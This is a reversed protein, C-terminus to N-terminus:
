SIVLVVRRVLRRQQFSLNFFIEGLTSVIFTEDLDLHPARVLTELLRPELSVSSRYNEMTPVNPM